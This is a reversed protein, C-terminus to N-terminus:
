EKKERLVDIPVVIRAPLPGLEGLTAYRGRSGKIKVGKVKMTLTFSENVEVLYYGPVCGLEKQVDIELKCTYKEM